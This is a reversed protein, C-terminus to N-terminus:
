KSYDSIQKKTIEEATIEKSLVKKYWEITLKVNSSSTNNAYVWVEDLTSTVTDGTHILTGATATQAVKIAKGDTSNSLIRKTFTAM